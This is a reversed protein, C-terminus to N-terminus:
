LPECLYPWMLRTGEPVVAGDTTKYPIPVSKESAPLDRVAHNNWTQWESLKYLAVPDIYRVDKPLISQENSTYEGTDAALITLHLHPYGKRGYHGGQTGTKGSYGIVQGMTVREGVALDLLERFHKYKSYIWVPLGTDEPSHRLFVQHGVLRAGSFLHVVEGDALAVVSTGEDASIDSGGHFGHNADLRRANGDFRTKDGFTSAVELCSAGRPYVPVVGTNFLGAREQVELMAAPHMPNQRMAETVEQTLTENKSRGGRQRNGRGQAWADGIVALTLVVALTGIVLNRLMM